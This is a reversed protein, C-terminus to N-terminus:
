GVEIHDDHHAVAKNIYDLREFLTLYRMGSIDKEPVPMGVYRAEQWNFGETPEVVRGSKREVCFSHVEIKYPLNIEERYIIYGVYLRLGNKKAYSVANEHVTVRPMTGVRFGKPIEPLKTLRSPLDRWFKRHQVLQEKINVPLAANALAILETKSLLGDALSVQIKM